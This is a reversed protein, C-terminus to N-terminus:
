PGTTFRGLVRGSTSGASRAAQPTSTQSSGASTGCPSRRVGRAPLASRRREHHVVQEAAVQHDGLHVKGVAGRAPVVPPAPQGFTHLDVEGALLEGVTLDEPPADQGTRRTRHCPAILLVQRRRTRTSLGQLALGLEAGACVELLRARPGRRPSVAGAAAGRVGGQGGRDVAVPGPGGYSSLDYARGAHGAPARRPGARLLRPRPRGARRARAERGSTATWRRTCAGPSSWTSRPPGPRRVRNLEADRRPHLLPVRRLAHVPHIRRSSRTPAAQGLRLPLAHPPARQGYVM